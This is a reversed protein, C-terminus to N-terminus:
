RVPLVTVPTPLVTYQQYDFDYALNQEIPPLEELASCTTENTSTPRYHRLTM